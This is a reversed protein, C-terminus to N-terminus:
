DRPYACKSVLRRRFFTSVDERSLFVRCSGYHPYPIPSVLWSNIHSGADPNRSPLLSCFLSSLLHYKSTLFFLHPKILVIGHGTPYHNRYSKEGGGPVYKICNSTAESGSIEFLRWCLLADVAPCPKSYRMEFRKQSTKRRSCENTGVLVLKGPAYMGAICM